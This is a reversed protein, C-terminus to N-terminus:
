NAATGVPSRTPLPESVRQMLSPGTSAPPGGTKSRPPPWGWNDQPAPWVKYGGFNHWPASSSPEYRKGVESANVFMSPHDGLDYQMVRGGIEPVIALTVVGNALVIAEWGWGNYDQVVDVQASNQARAGTATLAVAIILRCYISRGVGM